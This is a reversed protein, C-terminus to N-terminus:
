GGMVRFAVTTGDDFLATGERALTLKTTNTPSQTAQSKVVIWPADIKDAASAALNAETAYYNFDVTMTTADRANIRVSRRDRSDALGFTWLNDGVAVGETVPNWATCTVVASAASVSIKKASDTSYFRTWNDITDLTCPKVAEIPGLDELVVRCTDELPNIETRELRVLRQSYGAAAGTGAGLSYSFRFLQGLEYACVWLPALFSIRRTVYARRAASSSFVDLARPPFVWAGSARGENKYSLPLTTNGPATRPLHDESRWFDQQDSSWEISLRSLAAGREDAGRPITEQYDGLVDVSRLHPLTGAATTVDAANWAGGPLCHLKNDRGVWITLGSAECIHTFIEHLNTPGSITGGITGNLSQMAQSARTFDAVLLGAAGGESWDTVLAQIVRAPNAGSTSVIGIRVTGSPVLFHQGNELSDIESPTSSVGGVSLYVVWVDATTAGRNITCRRKIKNLSISTDYPPTSTVWNAQEGDYTGTRIEWQEFTNIVPETVTVGVVFMTSGQDADVAASSIALTTPFVNRGMLIPAVSDLNETMGGGNPGILDTFATQALTANSGDRFYSTGDAFGGSASTKIDRLTIVWKPPGLIQEDRSALPITATTETFTVPGSCYMTPSIQQEVFAGAPTKIGHYLTLKLNLVSDSLYELSADSGTAGVLWKRLRGDTIDLTLTCSTREPAGGITEPFGSVISGVDLLRGDYLGASSHGVFATSWYFTSTQVDSSDYFAGSAVVYATYNAQQAETLWSM